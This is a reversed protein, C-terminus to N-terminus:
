DLTNGVTGRLGTQFLQHFEESMKWPEEGEPIRMQSYKEMDEIQNEHHWDVFANYDRCRKNVNFDPFPHDQTEVWVNTIIDGNASCM